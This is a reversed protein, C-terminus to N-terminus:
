RGRNRVWRGAAHDVARDDMAAVKEDVDDSKRRQDAARRAQDLDASRKAARGGAAYAGALVLLAAALLALWGQVRVWLTALMVVRM